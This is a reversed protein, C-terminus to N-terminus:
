AKQDTNVDNTFEFMVPDYAAGPQELLDKVMELAGEHHKIMLELFLRDFEGGSAAALRAMDEASAMGAMVQTGHGMAAHDMAPSSAPQGRQGLWTTMFEMEDAQSADIRGAVAVIEEQNTRDKVLAAMEVAQRHHAIMHQMFRVDAPSFSTDALAVAQDVDIQRTAQGPAGPQVIQVDQAATITASSLLVAM